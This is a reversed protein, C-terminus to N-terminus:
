QRGGAKLAPGSMRRVDVSLARVERALAKMNGHDALAYGLNIFQGVFSLFTVVLVVVELVTLKYGEQKTEEDLSGSAAFPTPAGTSGKWIPM